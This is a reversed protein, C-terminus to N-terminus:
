WHFNLIALLPKVAPEGIHKTRGLIFGRVRSGVDAVFGFELLGTIDGSVLDAYSIARRNRGAKRNIRFIAYTALEKYTIARLTGRIKRDITLITDIDGLIMPRIEIKSKVAAGGNM